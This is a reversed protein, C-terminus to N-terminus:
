TGGPQLGLHRAQVFASFDDATAAGPFGRLLVQLRIHILRCGYTDAQLGIHGRWPLRAAAGPTRVYIYIM